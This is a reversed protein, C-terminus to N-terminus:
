SKESNKATLDQVDQRYVIKGAGAWNGEPVEYILTWV